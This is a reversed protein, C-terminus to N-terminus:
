RPQGMCAEVCERLNAMGRRIWTKITGLPKHLHAALEGHSLGQSYALVLTQREVAALEALCDRLWRGIRDRDVADDAPASWDFLRDLAGEPDEDLADHYSDVRAVDHSEMLDLARNRVIAVMWGTPAGLPDFSEATRWIKAFADHLVEEALERRRVIRQAVGLLLPACARYLQEFAEAAGPQRAAVTLLLRKITPDDLM